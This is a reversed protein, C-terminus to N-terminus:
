EPHPPSRCKRGESTELRLLLLSDIATSVADRGMVDLGLLSNEGGDEEVVIRDVLDCALDRGVVEVNGRM